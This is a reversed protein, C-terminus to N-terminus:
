FLMVKELIKFQYKDFSKRICNILYCGVTHNVKPILMDFDFAMDEGLITKAVEHSRSHLPKKFLGDVFKSPWM